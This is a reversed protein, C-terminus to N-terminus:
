RGVVAGEIGSNLINHDSSLVETPHIRSFIHNWMCVTGSTSHNWMRWRSYHSKRVSWCVIKCDLRSVFKLNIESIFRPNVWSWCQVVLLSLNLWNGEVERIHQIEAKRCWFTEIRVDRTTNRDIVPAVRHVQTLRMHIPSEYISITWDYRQRFNVRCLACVWSFVSQSCPDWIDAQM